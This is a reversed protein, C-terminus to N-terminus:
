AGEEGGWPEQYHVVVGGEEDGWSEQYHVAGMEEGEWLEQYHVEGEEEELTPLLYCRGGMAQCSHWEKVVVALSTLQHGM